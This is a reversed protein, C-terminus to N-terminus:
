KLLLPGIGSIYLSLDVRQPSVVLVVDGFHFGVEAIDTVPNLGCDKVLRYRILGRIINMHFEDVNHLVFVAAKQTLPDLVDIVLTAGTYSIRM